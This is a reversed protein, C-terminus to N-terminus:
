STGTQRAVSLAADLSGHWPEGHGPLVTTVSVGELRRLSELAEYSNKNFSGPMVRPGVAGTVISLTVLSDGTFIIDRDQVEFCCSGDTHGPTHIVRPRGPVDLTEDDSFLEADLVPPAKLAGERYFSLLSKWAFPRYLDRSWHREYERTAEGRALAGDDRHVMVGAGSEDRIQASSGLHDGHAHTLIIAEIDALTRGISALAAALQGYQHPNGADVVTCRDGAEILYWNVLDTGLRYVQDAVQYTM